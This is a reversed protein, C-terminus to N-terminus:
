VLPAEPFLVGQETLSKSVDSLLKVDAPDGKPAPKQQNGLSAGISEFFLGQRPKELFNFARRFMRGDAKIDNSLHAPIIRKIPWKSVRDAWELVRKPERNLILKQLIPAVLLGGQLAKFNPREDRVWEWPYFGGDFPIAGEGLKRMESPVNKLMKISELTDLVNIGAPQFTLGFLVMRRWGKRRNAPTDEVVDFMTDRAHYLLARPDDQIIAPVDDDVRVVTDTVLLTGSPRHFFATEAFGGVGPPRLPGLILHDIDEYWPASAAEAPIEFIKRGFPFYLSVPLDLPFSYQGPQVYVSASPFRRAFAGATGKHELALSSLTIYKVKSGSSKEIDRILEVCEETPAVPNNIFLGKDNSLKIITSRVPVNVNIIGQLQDLTWVQGKVVETLITKRRGTSEPSLPLLSFSFKGLGFKMRKDSKPVQIIQKVDQESTRSVFSPTDSTLLKGRNSVSTFFGLVSQDFSFLIVLTFIINMMMGLNTNLIPPSLPGLLSFQIVFVM